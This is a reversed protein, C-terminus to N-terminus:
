RGNKSTEYTAIYGVAVVPAIGIWECIPESFFYFVIIALVCMLFGFLREM